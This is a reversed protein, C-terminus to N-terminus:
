FHIRRFGLEHMVFIDAHGADRRCGDKSIKFEKM